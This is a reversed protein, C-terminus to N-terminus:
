FKLPPPPRASTLPPRPSLPPALPPPAIAAGPAGRAGPVRRRARDAAALAARRAARARRSIRARPRRAREGGIVVNVDSLAKTVTSTRARAAPALARQQKAKAVFATPRALASTSQM